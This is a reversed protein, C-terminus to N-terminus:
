WLFACLWVLWLFFFFVFGLTKYVM